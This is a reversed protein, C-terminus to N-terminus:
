TVSDCIPLFVAVSETAHTPCDSSPAVFTATQWDDKSLHCVHILGRHAVPPNPIIRSMAALELRQVRRGVPQMWDNPPCRIPEALIHSIGERIEAYFRLAKKHCREQFKNYWSHTKGLQSSEEQDEDAPSRLAIRWVLGSTALV